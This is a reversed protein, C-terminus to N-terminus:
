TFVVSFTVSKLAIESSSQLICLIIKRSFEDFNQPVHCARVLRRAFEDQCRPLRDGRDALDALWGADIM